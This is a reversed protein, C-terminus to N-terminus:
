EPVHAPSAERAEEFAERTELALWVLFVLAAVDEVWWWQLAANLALGGLVTAAMLACTISSAADGRLAGSELRAAIRRKALALGPMVIVAALAIGIGAWSREPQVRTVLGVLASVLVYVCLLALAVGVGWAARREAQEVREQQGGRAEVSLRWLLIVGSALEIVSDLGFAILLLSGAILGAGISVAAEIVMWVVTIIELWAGLRVQATRNAQVHM